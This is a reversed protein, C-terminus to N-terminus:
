MIKVNIKNKGTKRLMIKTKGSPLIIENFKINEFTRKYINYGDSFSISNTSFNLNGKKINIDLIRSSNIPESILDSISLVILDVQNKGQEFALEQKYEQIKPIAMQFVLGVIIISFAMILVVSVVVNM